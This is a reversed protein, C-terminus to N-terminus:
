ESVEVGAEGNRKPYSFFEMCISSILTVYAFKVNEYEYPFYDHWIKHKEIMELVGFSVYPKRVNRKKEKRKSFAKSAAPCRRLSGGDTPGDTREDM